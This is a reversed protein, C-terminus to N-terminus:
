GGNKYLSHIYIYDKVASPVYISIDKNERVMDRIIVSSTDSKQTPIEIIKANHKKNLEDIKEKIDFNIGGRGFVAFDLLGLLKDGDKWHEIFSLSDAGIIFTFKTNPHASLLYIITDITYSFGEKKLEFDSLEFGSHGEIALEIMKYRHYASSKAQPKHPPISNPIFIVSDLNLYKLCTDAMDLHKNHIPDFTGGFIGKKIKM